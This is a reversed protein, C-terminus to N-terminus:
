VKSKENNKAKKGYKEEWPVAIGLPDEQYELKGDNSLLDFNPDTLSSYLARGIILERIKRNNKSIQYRLVAQLVENMFEGELSKLGNKTIRKKSKLVVSINGDNQKDDLYIYAQDLFSYCANLIAELPYLKEKLIIIM